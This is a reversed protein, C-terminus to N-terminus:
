RTHRIPRSSNIFRYHPKNFQMVIVMATFVLGGIILYSLIFAAITNMIIEVM